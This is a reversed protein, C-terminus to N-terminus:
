FCGMFVLVVFGGGFVQVGTTSRIPIKQGSTRLPLPHDPSRGYLHSLLLPPPCAALTAPTPLVLSFQLLASSLSPLSPLLPLPSGLPSFFIHLPPLPCLGGLVFRFSALRNGSILIPDYPPTLPTDNSRRAQHGGGGPSLWRREKGPGLERGAEPAPSTQKGQSPKRFPSGSKGSM